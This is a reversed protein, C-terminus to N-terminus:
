PQCTAAEEKPQAADEGALEPHPTSSIFRPNDALAEEGTCVAFFPCTRGFRVCADPNRPFRGANQSERIQQGLQWVDHLAEAMESELRVVEGRQYYAAPNNAIDEVLRARYEEPTEDEARQNAYLVGAKTYKRAEEPTAKLPKIGPKGVVDYLCGDVEYGLSTAGEYYVSVQGDMRLRRWYESGQSIDESSSKHEGVLVRGTRRDRLVADLKGALRWTRSAAGTAPNRLETEFQAEVLLVDYPEGAWRTDYGRLLEEAKVRDFPDAEGQVAALAPELRAGEPARWWAELGLHLLTGFRLAEATVAPRYRLTYEIFHLRQCARASKLRSNTLLATM